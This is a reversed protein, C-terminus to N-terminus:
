LHGMAGKTSSVLPGNGRAIQEGFVTGIAGIEVEDGKPTSTAHANIYAVSEMPVHALAARMAVQAGAGDAAPASVHTADGSM